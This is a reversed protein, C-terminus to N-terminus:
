QKVKEPTTTAPTGTAAESLLKGKLLNIQENTLEPKTSTAEKSLNEQLKKIQNIGQKVQVMAKDLEVKTQNWNFESGRSKRANIKFEYKLNFIWVIFFVAMVSSVGLWLFLRKKKEAKDAESEISYDEVEQIETAEKHEEFKKASLVKIELKKSIHKPRKQRRKPM